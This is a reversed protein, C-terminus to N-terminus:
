VQQNDKTARLHRSYARGVSVVLAVVIVILVVDVALAVAWHPFIGQPDPHPFDSLTM